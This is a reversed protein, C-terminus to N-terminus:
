GHELVGRTYFTSAAKGYREGATKFAGTHAFHDAASRNSRELPIYMAPPSKKMMEARFELMERGVIEFLRIYVLNDETGDLKNLIYNSKLALVSDVKLAM